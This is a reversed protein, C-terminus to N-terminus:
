ARVFDLISFYHSISGGMVFLHWIAHSFPLSKWAYFITGLSYSTGGIILWVLSLSSIHSILTPFSFLILWGMILYSFLSIRKFSNIACIKFVIGSIAIGWVIGFLAWGYSDRLPGLTFPTYSGAIFLYICSHDVIKWVKKYPIHSCRHYITSAAYLGILTIGYTYCSVINWIDKNPSIWFLISGGILSLIFGICHTWYNLREEQLTEGSIPCITSINANVCSRESM